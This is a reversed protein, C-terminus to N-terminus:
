TTEVWPKIAQLAADLLRRDFGFREVVLRAAQVTAQDIGHSVGDLEYMRGTRPFPPWGTVHIETRVAAAVEFGYPTMDVESVEFRLGTRFGDGACLFREHVTDEDFTYFVPHNNILWYSWHFNTPDQRYADVTRKWAAVRRRQLSHWQKSWSSKADDDVTWPIAPLTFPHQQPEEASVIESV